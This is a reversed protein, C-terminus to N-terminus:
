FTLVNSCFTYTNAMLRYGKATLMVSCRAHCHSLSPLGVM